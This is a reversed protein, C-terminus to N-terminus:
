MGVQRCARRLRFPSRATWAFLTSSSCHSPGFLRIKLLACIESWKAMMGVTSSGFGRSSM